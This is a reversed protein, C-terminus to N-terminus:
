SVESGGFHIIRGEPDPIWPGSVAMVVTRPPDALGREVVTPPLAEFIVPVDSPYPWDPGSFWRTPSTHSRGILVVEGDDLFSSYYAKKEAELWVKKRFTTGGAESWGGLQHRLEAGYFVTGLSLKQAEKLRKLSEERGELTWDLRPERVREPHNTLGLVGSTEGAKGLVMQEIHILVRQAYYAADHKVPDHYHVHPLRKAPPPPFPLQLVPVPAGERYHLELDTPVKLALSYAPFVHRRGHVSERASSCYAQIWSWEEASRSVPARAVALKIRSRQNEYMGSTVVEDLVDMYKQPDLGMDGAMREVQNRRLSRAQQPCSTM